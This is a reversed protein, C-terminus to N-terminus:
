LDEAGASEWSPTVAKKALGYLTLSRAEDGRGRALARIATVAGRREGEGEHAGDRPEAGAVGGVFDM